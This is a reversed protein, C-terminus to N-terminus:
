HATDAGRPRLVDCWLLDSSVRQGTISLPMACGLAAFPFHQFLSKEEVNGLGLLLFDSYGLASHDGCGKSFLSAERGDKARGMGAQM